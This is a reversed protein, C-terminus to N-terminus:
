PSHKAPSAFCDRQRHVVLGVMALLALPYLCCASHHHPSACPADAAYECYGPSKPVLREFAIHGARRMHADLGQLLVVLEKDKCAIAQPIDDAVLHSNHARGRWDLTCTNHMIVQEAARDDDSASCWHVPVFDTRYIKCSAIWSTREMISGSSAALCRDCSAMFRPLPFYSSKKRGSAQIMALRSVFADPTARAGSNQTPHSHTGHKLEHQGPKGYCSTQHLTSAFYMNNVDNRQELFGQITRSGNSIQSTHLTAPRGNFDTWVLPPQSPAGNISSIPLSKALGNRGVGAEGRRRGVPMSTLRQDAGATPMSLTATDAARPTGPAEPLGGAGSGAEGGSSGGSVCCRETESRARTAHLAPNFCSPACSALTPAVVLSNNLPISFGVVLKCPQQGSRMHM